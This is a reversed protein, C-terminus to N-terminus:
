RNYRVGAAIMIGVGIVICSVMLGTGLGIWELSCAIGGFLVGLGVLITAKGMWACYPKKNEEAVKDWHYDHILTIKEKKWILWGLWFLLGGIAVFLLIGWIM